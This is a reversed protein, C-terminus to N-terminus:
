GPASSFFFIAFLTWWMCLILHAIIVSLCDWVQWLILLNDYSISFIPLPTSLPASMAPAMDFKQRRPTHLACWVVMCWTVENLSVYTMHWRGGAVQAEPLIVLIKKRATVCYPLPISLSILTFRFRVKKLLNSRLTTHRALQNSNNIRNKIIKFVILDLPKTHFWCLFNMLARSVDSVHVICWAGSISDDVTIIEGTICPLDM